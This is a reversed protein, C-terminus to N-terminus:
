AIRDLEAVGLAAQKLQGLAGREGDLEHLADDEERRLEENVFDWLVM